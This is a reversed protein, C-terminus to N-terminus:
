HLVFFFNLIVWSAEHSVSNYRFAKADCIVMVLTM